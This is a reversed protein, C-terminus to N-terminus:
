KGDPILARVKQIQEKVLASDHARPRPLAISIHHSVTGGSCVLITDSLAVADEISHSVMLMTINRESWIRLIDASLSATSEVDLASFPEDLLLLEPESVLARAIGVRQRQGGSLERPTKHLHEGLGLDQLAKEAKKKKQAPTARVDTLGILVNDLATLWPLLGASQFIMRTRLPRYVKGQVPTEIGAALKLVTSKGGGSPGVITTFSRPPISFSVNSLVPPLSRDFSFSVTDFSLATADTTHDM